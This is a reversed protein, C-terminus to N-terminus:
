KEWDKIILTNGKKEVVVKQKKQWDLERILAIPLTIAYSTAHKYLKRINQNEIKRM